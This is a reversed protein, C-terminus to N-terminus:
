TKVLWLLLFLTVWIYIQGYLSCFAHVHIHHLNIFTDACQMKNCKAMYRNTTKKKWVVSILHQHLMFPCQITLIFQTVNRSFIDTCGCDSWLREQECSELSEMSSFQHSKLVSCTWLGTQIKVAPLVQFVPKRMVHSLYM